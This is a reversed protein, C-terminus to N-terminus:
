FALKLVQWHICCHGVHHFHYWCSHDLLLLCYAYLLLAYMNYTPYMWDLNLVTSPMHHQRCLIPAIKLNSTFFAGLSYHLFM